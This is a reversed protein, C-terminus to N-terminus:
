PMLQYPDREEIQFSTAPFHSPQLPAQYYPPGLDRHDATLSQFKAYPEDYYSSIKSESRPRAYQQVQPFRPYVDQYEDFGQMAFTSM